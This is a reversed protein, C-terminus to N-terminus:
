WDLGLRSCFWFLDTYLYADYKYFQVTVWLFCQNWEEETWKWVWLQQGQHPRDLHPSIQHLQPEQHVRGRSQQPHLGPGGQGVPLLTALGALLFGASRRARLLLLPRLPVLLASVEWWRSSSDTSTERLSSTLSMIVLEELILSKHTDNYLIMCSLLNFAPTPWQRNCVPPSRASTPNLSTVSPTTGPGTSYEHATCAWAARARLTARSERDGSLSSFQGAM